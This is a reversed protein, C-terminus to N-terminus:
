HRASLFDAVRAAEAELTHDAAVARAAAVFEERLVTDSIMRELARVSAHADSPPCVLGRGAVLDAVGGVDTAVVPLGAAFAELIVQPVGETLSVHLLVHASRYHSWLGDDVPVYGNLTMRDAVGLQKARRVLEDALVGDGCVELRWRPDSKIAIALIDALLLPNKEPDLRGVSLMVLQEGDYSRKTDSGAALDSARLLSVYTSLITKSRQYRRALDPGVVIVPILRALGRWCMELLYAAAVLTRRNSRRHRILEPLNQRVGLVVHRRRVVGLIVFLFAQPPNPGLVWVTELEDLARWFRWVSRPIARLVELVDAGSTYFPLAVLEAARVSFPFAAETGPDLRGFVVLRDCHPELGELFLSFPRNASVAGGVIRYSYDCYVGLRLL